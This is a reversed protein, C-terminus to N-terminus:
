DAPTILFCDTNDAVTHCIRKNRIGAQQYQMILAQELAKIDVTGGDPIPTNEETTEIDVSDPNICLIPGTTGDGFHQGDNDNARSYVLVFDIEHPASLGGATLSAGLEKVAGGVGTTLECGGWVHDESPAPPPDALADPSVGTALVVLLATLFTGSRRCHSGPRREDAGGGAAATSQYSLPIRTIM